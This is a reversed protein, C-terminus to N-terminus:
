NNLINLINQNNSVSIVYKKCHFKEIYPINTHINETEFIMNKFIGNQEIIFIPAYM